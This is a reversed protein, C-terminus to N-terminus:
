LKGALRLGVEIGCIFEYLEKTGLCALNRLNNEKAPVNGAHVLRCEMCIDSIDIDLPHVANREPSFNFHEGCYGHYLSYTTSPTYIHVIGTDPKRALKASGKIINDLVLNAVREHM